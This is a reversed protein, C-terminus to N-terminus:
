AKKRQPKQIAQPVLSVLIKTASKMANFLVTFCGTVSTEVGELETTEM